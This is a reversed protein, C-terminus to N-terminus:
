ATKVDEKGKARDAYLKAYLKDRTVIPELALMVLCSKFNDEGFIKRAVDHDFILSDASPVEEVITYEFGDDRKESNVYVLHHAIIVDKVNYAERIVAKFLDSSEANRDNEYTGEIKMGKPTFDNVTAM